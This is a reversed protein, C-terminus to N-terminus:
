SHVLNNISPFEKAFRLIWEHAAAEQSLHRGEAKEIEHRYQEIHCIQEIMRVAYATAPDDFVLGTRFHNNKEPICWAVHGTAKFAPDYISIQIELATGIAYFTDTSLSIGIQGCHSTTNPSIPTDASLSIQAPINNPHRIYSQTINSTM